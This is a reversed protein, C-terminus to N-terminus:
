NEPTQMKQDHAKVEDIIRENKTRCNAPMLRVRKAGIQDKRVGWSGAVVQDTRGFWGGGLPRGPVRGSKRLRGFPHPKETRQVM